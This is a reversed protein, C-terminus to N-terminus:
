EELNEQSEELLQEIKAYVEEAQEDNMKDEKIALVINQLELLFSEMERSEDMNDETQEGKEILKHLDEIYAEVEPIMTTEVVELLDEKIQTM